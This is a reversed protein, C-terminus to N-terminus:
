PASANQVTITAKMGSGSSGHFRCYVEYVGPKNFQLHATAGIDLVIDIDFGDLTVSHGGGINRFEIVEGEKIVANIPAFNFNSLTITRTPNGASKPDLYLVATSYNQKIRAASARDETFNIIRFSTILTRGKSTIPQDIEPGEYVGDGDDKHPVAYLVKGARLSYNLSIIINDESGSILPSHGIINEKSLRVDEYIVVYGPSDFKAKTIMVDQGVPQNYITVVESKIGKTFSVLAWTLVILLAIAIIVITWRSGERQAM